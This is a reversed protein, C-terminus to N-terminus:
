FTYGDYYEVKRDMEVALSSQAHRSATDDDRQNHNSASVVSSIDAVNVQPYKIYELHVARFVRCAM